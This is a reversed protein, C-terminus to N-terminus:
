LRKELREAKDALIALAQKFLVEPRLAGTSEITFIFHDKRKRFEIAERWRPDETLRRVRELQAEAARTRVDRVFLKGQAPPSLRRPPAAATPPADHRPL